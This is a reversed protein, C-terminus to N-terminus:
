LFWEPYMSKAIDKSMFQEEIIKIDNPHVGFSKNVVTTGCVMVLDTTCKHFNYDFSVVLGVGYTEDLMYCEIDSVDIM